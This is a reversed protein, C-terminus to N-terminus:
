MGTFSVRASLSVASRPLSKRRRTYLSGFTTSNHGKTVLTTSVSKLRHAGGEESASARVPKSCYMTGFALTSLLVFGCAASVFFSATPKDEVARRRGRLALAREFGAAAASATPARRRSRRAFLLWAEIEFESKRVPNVAAAALDGAACEVASTGDRLRSRFCRRGAGVRSRRGRAGTVFVICRNFARLLDLRLIQGRHLRLQRNRRRGGYRRTRGGEDATTPALGM